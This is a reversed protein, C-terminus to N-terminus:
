HGGSHEPNQERQAKPQNQDLIDGTTGPQLKEVPWHGRSTNQHTRRLHRSKERRHNNTERYPRAQARM